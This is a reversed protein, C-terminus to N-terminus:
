AFPPVMSFLSYLGRKFAAKETIQNHTFPYLVWKENVVPNVFYVCLNKLTALTQWNAIVFDLNKRNNLVVLATKGPQKLETIDLLEPRILFRVEGNKKHVIFDKGTEEISTILQEFSDRSTVYDKTWQALDM